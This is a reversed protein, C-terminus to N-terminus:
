CCVPDCSPQSLQFIFISFHAASNFIFISHKRLPLFWIHCLSLIQFHSRLFYQNECQAVTSGEMQSMFTSNFIFAEHQLTPWFKLPEKFFMVLHSGSGLFLLLYLHITCIFTRASQIRGFLWTCNRNILQESWSFFFCFHFVYWFLISANNHKM